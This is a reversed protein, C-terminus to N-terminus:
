TKLNSILDKVQGVPAIEQRAPQIQKGEVGLLTKSGMSHRVQEQRCSIADSAREAQFAGDM